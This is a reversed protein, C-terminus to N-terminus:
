LRTANMQVSSLRLALAESLALGALGPNLPGLEYQKNNHHHHFYKIIIFM